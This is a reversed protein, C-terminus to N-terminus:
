APVEALAGLLEGATEGDRPYAAQSIRPAPRTSPDRPSLAEELRRSVAPIGSAPTEPLLIYLGEGPARVLLDARRMIRPIVDLWRTPIGGERPPEHQAGPEAARRPGSRAGRRGGGDATAGEPAAAGAAEVQPQPRLRVLGFGRYYRRSREIEKDLLQEFSEIPLEAPAFPRGAEDAPQTM